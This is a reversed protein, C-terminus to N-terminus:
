AQLVASVNKQQNTTTTFNLAVIAHGPKLIGTNQLQVFRAHKLLQIGIATKKRAILASMTLM